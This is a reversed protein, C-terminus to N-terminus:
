DPQRSANREREREYWCIWKRVANDSVGYRRGTALFGNSRVEELLQEYPPREVKRREPAPRGRSARPAATGCRQSCFRQAGFRPQFSTGCLACNRPGTRNKRGCHTDLTAACNPCVIRLNELRNDDAVGNILREKLRARKYSSNTTLVDELATPSPAAARRAVSPDFHATSLGLMDIWRKISRHNGGAPRLGLRRIVETLSYSTAVAEALDEFTWSAAAVFM